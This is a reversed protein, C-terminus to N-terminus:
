IAHGFLKDRTELFCTKLTFHALYIIQKQCYESTSELYKAYCSETCDSFQYNHVFLNEHVSTFLTKQISKHTKSKIGM